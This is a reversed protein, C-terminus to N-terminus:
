RNSGKNQTLFYLGALAMTLLSGVALTLGFDAIAPTQSLALLGFSLLTTIGAMAIATLTYVRDHEHCLHSFVAYDVGIGFILLLAAVHFLNVPNGTIVVAALAGLVSALPLGVISLAKRLGTRLAIVAFAVLVILPLLQLLLDRQQSMIKAIDRPSDVLTVGPLTVQRELLAAEPGFLRVISTCHGDECGLWLSRYNDDATELWASLPVTKFPQPLDAIRKEIQATTYGLQQYFNNVAASRYFTELLAHNERQHKLSPFKNSLAQFDQLEHADIAQKLQTTLLAERQLLQQWNEGQVLFYKSSARAPLLANLQQEDKTLFDPAQYFLQLDGSFKIKVIAAGSIILVFILAIYYISRHNSQLWHPLALSRQPLKLLSPFLLVVTLWAGLLGCGVFLGMQQLLPFPTFALAFFALCSSLLGLVLGPMIDSDRPEGPRMRNCIFHFSYDIALGTVTTGFVFALIHMQGLLAIVAATGSAIGCGIAFISLILPRPSRFLLLSLLCIAGMSLGGIFRIERQAGAAAYETHLPVGAVLLQLGHQTAWQKSEAVLDLAPTSVQGSMELPQVNTKLLTFIQTDKRQIPIEASTQTITAINKPSDGLMFHRFTSFADTDLNLRSGSSQPGYIYALQQKSFKGPSLAIQQKDHDTLLQQRMPLLLQWERKARQQDAWRYSLTDVIKAAQLRNALQQTYEALSQEPTKQEAPDREKTREAVLIWILSQQLQHNLNEQARQNAAPLANTGALALLDTQLWHPQYRSVAALTLSSFLILWILLRLKM